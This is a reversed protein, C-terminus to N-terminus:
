EPGFCQATSPEFYIRTHFMNRNLTAFYYDYLLSGLAKDINVVIREERRSNRNTNDTHITINLKLLQLEHKTGRLQTYTLFLCTGSLMTSLFSAAFRPTFNSLFSNHGKGSDPSSSSSFNSKNTQKRQMLSNALVARVQWVHKIRFM